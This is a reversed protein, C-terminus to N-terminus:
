IRLLHMGFDDAMDKEIKDRLYARSWYSVRKDIPLYMMLIVFRTDRAELLGYLTCLSFCVRSLGVHIIILSLSLNGIM